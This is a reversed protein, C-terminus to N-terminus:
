SYVGNEVDVNMNEHYVLSTVNLSGSQHLERYFKLAEAAVATVSLKENLPHRYSHLYHHHGFMSAWPGYYGCIPMNVDKLNAVIEVVMGGPPMFMSSTLGAGHNGVLIDANAFDRIECTLCYDPKSADRSNHIIM